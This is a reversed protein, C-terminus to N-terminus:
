VFFYIFLSVQQKPTMAKVKAVSRSGIESPQKFTFPLLGVVTVETSRGCQM